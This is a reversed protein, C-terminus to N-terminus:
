KSVMPWLFASFHISIQRINIKRYNAILDYDIKKRGLCKSVSDMIYQTINIFRIFYHIERPLTQIYIKIHEIISSVIDKSNM